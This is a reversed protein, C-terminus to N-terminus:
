VHRLDGGVMEDILEVVGAGYANKTVLSVREKLSPLANAVAASFGCASLFAHDNEADGVGAINHLSLSLRNAAIQLGTAKNVASPLVMLSGKNLIIQLELGLESIADLVKQRQDEVTGIIVKGADLHATGKKVLLDLFAHPPAEAVIEEAGSTPDYLVAGNEAVISDFEKLDSFVSELESLTRGTVLIAYRGSRRLRRLADITSPSVVGEQALTGDYDTALAAFRM